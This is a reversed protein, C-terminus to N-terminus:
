GIRAPVNENLWDILARLRGFSRRNFGVKLRPLSRLHPENHEHRHAVTREFAGGPALLDAFRGALEAFPADPIEYKLRLVLKGEVYRQSDYVRYFRAIEEAADHVDHVIKFFHMDESSILGGALLEREVYGLWDTWFRSGSAEVLV